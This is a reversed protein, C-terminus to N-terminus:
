IVEDIDVYWRDCGSRGGRRGGGWGQLSVATVQGAPPETLIWVGLKVKADWGVLGSLDQAEDAVVGILLPDLDDASGADAGVVIHSQGGDPRVLDSHSAHGSLTVSTRPLLYYEGSPHPPRAGIAQRTPIAPGRRRVDHIREVSYRVLEVVDVIWAEDHM